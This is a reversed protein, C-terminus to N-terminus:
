EQAGGQATPGRRSDYGGRLRQRADIPYVRGGWSITRGFLTSWIIAAHCALWAPTAWRDLWLVRKLRRLGPEGWLARIVRRRLSARVQDLVNAALIAAIALRDGAIALPLAVAWGLLPLTTAAAAFAWLKPAHIRVLLYQRRGFGLGSRWSYAAPTPLLLERPALIAGGRERIAASLSLDDSVSGRWIREIDLGDLMERRLAMTGGWAYNLYRPRPLTSVSAHAACILSTALNGREPMLWRYGSVVEVSPDALGRVIRVLWDPPPEIDADAFVIIRDDSRSCALAALLNHVKQGSDTALGAVVIEVQPAGGPSATLASLVAFAPDAESEVAFILRWPRYAQACLRVWLARLDNSVGRVPIIVVAAVPHEVRVTRGLKDQYFYVCYCGFAAVGVWAAMLALRLVDFAGSLDSFDHV